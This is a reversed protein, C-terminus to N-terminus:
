FFPIMCLLAYIKDKASTYGIYFCVSNYQVSLYFTGLCVITGIDLDFPIGFKKGEFVVDLCCGNTNKKFAFFLQVAMM